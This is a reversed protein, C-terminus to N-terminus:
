SALIPDGVATALKAIHAIADPDLEAVPPRPPGVPFGVATLAAKVAPIFPQAMIAGILPYVQSWARRAEQLDGASVADYVAVLESPVVNATGAMVGAAGEALASLLLSDWGVFTSIVDGHDHILAASQAM